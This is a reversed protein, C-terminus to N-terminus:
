VTRKDLMERISGLLEISADIETKRIAVSEVNFGFPIKKETCYEILEIAISKCNQVSDALTDNSHILDNKLWKPIDIGLWNMFELTKVSGCPTLTFVIPVMERKEEQATYYYDSIFNKANELNYVCQSIFFQCGKDIKDFVRTHENGKKLHREPIMVGGLLLDSNMERKIRYADQLSLSNEQNKSPSGVFVSYDISNSEDELLARFETETYKGVSKYIIKPVDLETLYNQSYTDPDLTPSFPFPRPGDVRSTEDQIDYLILGDLRTNQLREIQKQAIVQIKDEATNQKPPTLGYFLFGTGKNIIRDRLM